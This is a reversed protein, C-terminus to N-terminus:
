GGAWCELDHITKRKKKQGGGIGGCDNLNFRQGRLTKMYIPFHYDKLSFSLVDVLLLLLLLWGGNVVIHNESQVAKAHVYMHGFVHHGPM